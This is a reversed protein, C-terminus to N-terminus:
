KMQLAALEVGEVRGAKRLALDVKPRIQAITAARCTALGKRFNRYDKANQISRNPPCIQDVARKIRRDLAERGAASGLDLDALKIEAKIPKEPGDQHGHYGNGALVQTPAVMLLALCGIKILVSKTM